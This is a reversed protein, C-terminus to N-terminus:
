LSFTGRVGLELWEHMATGSIDMSTGGVSQSRYEGLSFMVFPGLTFQPAVKFDGGAQVLLFEFGSVSGSASLGNASATVQFWEYGTGIGLWPAIPGSVVPRYVGQLALHIASASCNVGNGCGSASDKTQAFAYQFLVGAGFEQNFRYLADVVLPVAGSIGDTLSDGAANSIKGFPLAYGTRVALDVGPRDPDPTEDARAGHTGVMVITLAAVLTLARKM